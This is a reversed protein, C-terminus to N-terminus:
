DRSAQLGMAEMALVHTHRYGWEVRLMGLAGTHYTEHSTCFRLIDLVSQGGGFVETKAELDEDSLQSVAATLTEHLHGWDEMMVELSPYDEGETAPSQTSFRTAWSNERPQGCAALAFGRFALLHGVIWTISAGEDGRARRLADDPRLDGTQMRVTRDGKNLDEIIWERADFM